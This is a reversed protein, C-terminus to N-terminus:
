FVLDDEDYDDDDFYDDCDCSGFSNKCGNGCRSLRKVLLIGVAIGILLCVVSSLFAKSKCM